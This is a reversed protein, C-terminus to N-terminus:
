ADRSLQVIEADPREAPAEIAAPKEAPIETGPPVLLGSPTVGSAAKRLSALENRLAMVEVAIGHFEDMAKGGAVAAVLAAPCGLKATITSIAAAVLAAQNAPPQRRVQVPDGNDTEWTVHARIQIQREAPQGNPDIVSPEIM